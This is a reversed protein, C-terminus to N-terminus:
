SIDIEMGDVFKIEEEDPTELRWNPETSRSKNQGVVEYGDPLHKNIRNKTSKTKWGGSSLKVKQEDDMKVVVPTSHFIVYEVGHYNVVLDRYNALPQSTKCDCNRFTSHHNKKQLVTGNRVIKSYSPTNM